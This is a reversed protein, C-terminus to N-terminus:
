KSFIMGKRVAGSPDAIKLRREEAVRAERPVRKARRIL